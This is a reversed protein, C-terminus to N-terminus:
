AAEVQQHDHRVDQKESGSRELDHEESTLLYEAFLRFKGRTMSLVIDSALAADENLDPAPQRASKSYRHGEASLFFVLDGDPHAGGHAGGHMSAHAGSHEGDDQASVVGAVGIGLLLMSVPTLEWVPILAIGGFASCSALAGLLFRNPESIRRAVWTQSRAVVLTTLGYVGLVLGIAAYSLGWRTKLYAGLYTMGGFLLIGLALSVSM